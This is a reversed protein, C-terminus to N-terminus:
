RYVLTPLDSDSIVELTESGHVLRSLGRRGHSAMFVADCAHKRAAAVIARAPRDDEAYDTGFDVGASRALAAGHALASEARDRSQRAYDELSQIRKGWIESESPARYEPVATFLTVRAGAERAFQIGSTVAKEALESGDTPILIHKYM